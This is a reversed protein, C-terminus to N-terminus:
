SRRIKLGYEHVIDVLAIVHDVPTQPLIGHGLNFIHGPRGGAGDLIREAQMRILNRDAFLSVPDQNGQVGVNRGLRTWTKGLDVRWDLGLINGGAEKMLELLSATGTGFHITPIDSLGQFIKKMYPLVFTKYDEPGLCGVWTDFLQLVQVGAKAQGMLYRLVIRTLREMLAHFAPPDSHMLKKTEEFNRSTGGEILYSALTFPAGSFGILPISAPLWKRSKQIMEYVFPVAEDPNVEHLREADRGNRVPRLIAPGDGKRFELGVGMPEVLLLIDAFIVAADVGLRKVAMVTVEASLDSNKCLDLFTTKARIEQYESMYRGIQRMFWVPTTETPELRCAKMFLSEYLPDAAKPIEPELLLAAPGNAIRRKKEVLSPGKEAVEKVFLAMKSRTAELDVPLGHSQLSESSTPGISAVVIKSLASKFASELGSEKAVQVLHMVQAANTFLLIDAQGEAVVKIANRLPFTDEPLAWRYVPVRLVKAGRKSLEELFEHNSIGYEQVAVRKGRVPLKEDLFALIERWTNPEPVKHFDTIGFGNLVATPKPGRAVVPIKKITSLFKEKLRRTELVEALTRTGVGTMLILIDIEGRFLKEAFDFLQLNEELPVEKLSPAIVPKGGHRTILEEMAQALRSEFAVVRMGGFGKQATETTEKM